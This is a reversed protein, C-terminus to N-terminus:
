FPMEELDPAALSRDVATRYRDLERRLLRGARALARARRLTPPAAYFPPEDLTPHELLLVVDLAALAHDLLDVIVLERAAYLRARETRTM